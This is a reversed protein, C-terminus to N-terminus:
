SPTESDNGEPLLSHINEREIGFKINRKAAYDGVQLSYGALGAKILLQGEVFDIFPQVEGGEWDSWGEVLSSFDQSHAILKVADNTLEQVDPGHYGGLLDRGALVEALSSM